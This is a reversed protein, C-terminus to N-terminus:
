LLVLVVFAIALVAMLAVLWWARDRRVQGALSRGEDSWPKVGSTARADDMAQRIREEAFDVHSMGASIERRQELTAAPTRSLARWSRGLGSSVYRKEGARVALVQRIVMQEIAALPVHVTDTMGRLVLHRPTLSVRPRLVGAYLVVVGLLAGVVLTPAWGEQWSALGLGALLVALVVGAWGVWRGSTPSFHEIEEAM